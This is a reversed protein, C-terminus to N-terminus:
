YYEHLYPIKPPFMKRLITQYNVPPDGWGRITFDAPDNVGYVLASLGQITLTFTATKGPHIELQGSEGDFTWIGNNWPCDGDIVRATFSGMGMKMGGLKSVDLVRGMPAVFVPELRPCMDAVWTNPQEYAPLWLAVNGVQDIHRALWALLLYKAQSNRYYFHVARLDYNMMEEGQLSYVMLGAVENKVKALSLWSRNAQAAERQGELDTFLAMGHIDSQMQTTFTRYVEYNDGILSLVVEGELEQELLSAMAEPKFKAQRSQPFNIYGLREYFSERFPYLCSLVNGEEKLEEFAHRILMRSYGKRRGEPHTSVDAFGGMKYIKGRVNQTFMPCATIALGKAGEFVAYYITTKRTKIRKEWEVREPFPPTPSFAYNDLWFLLDLMEQGEVRRVSPTIAM